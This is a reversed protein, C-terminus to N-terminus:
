LLSVKVVVWVSVCVCVWECVFRLEREIAAQLQMFTTSPDLTLNATRGDSSTVKIKKSAPPSSSHSPTVTTSTTSTPHSSTPPHTPSKQPVQLLDHFRESCIQTHTETHVICLMRITCIYVYMYQIRTHICKCHWYWYFDHLLDKHTQRKTSMTYLVHSVYMYVCATFTCLYVIM